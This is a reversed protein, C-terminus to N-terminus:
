IDVVALYYAKEAVRLGNLQSKSLLYDNYAKLTQIVMYPCEEEFRQHIRKDLNNCRRMIKRREKNTMEDFHKDLKEELQFLIKSQPFQEKVWENRRERKRWEEFLKETKEKLEKLQDKLTLTTGYDVM